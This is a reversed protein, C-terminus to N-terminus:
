DAVSKIPGRVKAPLYVQSKTRNSCESCKRFYNTSGMKSYLIIELHGPCGPVNCAWEAKMSELMDSTTPSSIEESDRYEEIMDKVTSYRDLDIRALQKRLSSVEKKLKKNEFQLTQIKSFEKDCSKNRGV